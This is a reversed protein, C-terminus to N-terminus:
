KVKKIYMSFIYRRLSYQSSTCSYTETLNILTLLMIFDLFKRHFESKLWFLGFVQLLFVLSAKLSCIIACDEISVRM